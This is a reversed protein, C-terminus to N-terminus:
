GVRRTLPLRTPTVLWGAVPSLAVVAALTGLFSLWPVDVGTEGDMQVFALAAPLGVLVGLLTGALGLFLGHMAGIGRRRAPGAGVATLTAAEDRGEAAALAVAIGVVLLSLLGAGLVGAYRFQEAALRQPDDSWADIGYANLRQLDGDTITREAFAVYSPWSAELGLREVVDASVFAEGLDDWSPGARRDLRTVPL